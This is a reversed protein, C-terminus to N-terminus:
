ADREFCVMADCGPGTRITSIVEFPQLSFVYVLSEDECSIFAYQGDPSLATGAPHPGVKVTQVVKRSATDVLQVAASHFLPVVLTQGDPTIVVRVPGNGMAITDIQLGLQRDVISVAYSERNVVYILNGDNSFVMGEPRELVDIHKVVRGSGVDVETITNSFINATYAQQGGPAVNVMHACEQDLFAAHLLEESDIDYILLYKTSESTVFLRGNAAALGHPRDYEGTDITSLLKHSNTDYVAITHGGPGESEVGRVGMEAIYMKKQDPSLCIEHPFPRTQIDDMREGTAVDYFAFSHDTKHLVVLTYESM